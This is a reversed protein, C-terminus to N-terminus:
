MVKLIVSVIYNPVVPLGSIIQLIHSSIHLNHAFVIGNVYPVQANVSEPIPFWDGSSILSQSYM